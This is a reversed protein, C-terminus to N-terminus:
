GEFKTTEGGWVDGDAWPERAFLECRRVMPALRKCMERMEVPKRSHERRLGDIGGEMMTEIFNRESLSGVWPNGCSGLLYPETTSRQVFGTGFTPKFKATRKTWSGGTVYRFGWSRMVRLAEPLRPWIGWLVLWCDAGALEDVPMACIDDIPMTDYHAEPSKDYGEESYLDYQWPPDAHILGYAGRKLTQFPWNPAGQSM